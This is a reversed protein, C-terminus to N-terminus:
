YLASALVQALKPVVVKVGVIKVGVKLMREDLSGIASAFSRVPQVM